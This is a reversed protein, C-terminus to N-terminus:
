AKEHIIKIYKEPNNVMLHIQYKKKPLTLDFLLSKNKVFQVYM